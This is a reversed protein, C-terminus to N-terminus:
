GKSFPELESFAVSPLIKSTAVALHEVISTMLFADVKASLAKREKSDDYQERAGHRRLLEVVAGIRMRKAILM